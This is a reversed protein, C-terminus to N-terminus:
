YLKYEIIPNTDSCCIKKIDRKRLLNCIEEYIKNARIVDGDLELNIEGSIADIRYHLEKDKLDWLNLESDCNDCIVIIDPPFAYPKKDNSVLKISTLRKKFKNQKIIKITADVIDNILGLEVETFM